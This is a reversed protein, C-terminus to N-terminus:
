KQAQTDSPVAETKQAGKLGHFKRWRGYQTAVTAQNIGAAVAREMVTKRDAPLGKEASVADAIEWVTGTKTSAAPRSIGNNELKKSIKEERAARKADKEARKADREAQKAAAVEEAKKKAEAMVEASMAAM